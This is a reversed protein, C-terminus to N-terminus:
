AKSVVAPRPTGGLGPAEGGCKLVIGGGRRESDVLQVGGDGTRQECQHDEFNGHGARRRRSMQNQLNSTLAALADGSWSTNMVGYTEVSGFGGGHGTETTGNFAWYGWDVSYQRLFQHMFSFWYGLDLNNSSSVCTSLTNCTGFEGIWLPLPSNGTVLYGWKPNIKSYWDSYGTLGRYFFGYDHAEYVVRNAVHLSVPLSAVGSLDGAYNVGEAFILLNSNAGLVANGGREAAAHWDTSSSGGWTATVRPENRLDVGIVMPNSAYREVMGTWDNIWSTEPYTRNYWLNNVDNGCCWMATSTHNDLIVMVGAGTLTSVVQDFVSMAHLGELSPNAALAYSGVVPDSEYMQNSWPLRVANFGRNKIENVINTLGNAQLGAVVFDSGEAGYWNVANLRVRCGNSDVIYPGAVHLPLAPAASAMGALCCLSQALRLVSLRSHDETSAMTATEELGTYSRAAFRAVIDLHFSVAAAPARYPKARQCM